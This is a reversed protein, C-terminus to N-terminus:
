TTGHMLAVMVLWISRNLRRLYIRVLRTTYDVVIILILVVVLIPLGSLLLISSRVKSTSMSRLM